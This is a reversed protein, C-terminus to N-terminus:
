DRGSLVRRTTRCFTRGDALIIRTLQNLGATHIFSRSALRKIVRMLGAKGDQGKSSFFSLFLYCNCTSGSNRTRERSFHTVRRRHRRTVRITRDIERTVRAEARVSREASCSAIETAHLNQEILERYRSSCPFV